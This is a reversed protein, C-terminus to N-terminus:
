RSRMLRLLPFELYNWGIAVAVVLTALFLLSPTVWTPRRDACDAGSQCSVRRSRWWAWWAIIVWTGSGMLLPLRWSIMAELASFVGAGAGMAALSLPVVCCSSAAIAGLGFAIGIVGLLGTKAGTSEASVAARKVVPRKGIQM